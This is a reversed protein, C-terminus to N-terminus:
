AGRYSSVVVDVLLKALEKPRELMPLHGCEPIETESVVSMESSLRQIDTTPCLPDAVGRLLHVPSAVLKVLQELDVQKAAGVVSFLRISTRFSVGSMADRVTQIDLKRPAYVYSSLTIERFSSSKILIDTIRRPILVGVFQALTIFLLRPDHLAGRPSTLVDEVSFLVPDVLVIGKAIEPRMAAMQLVVLAGLSHGVLLNDGPAARDLFGLAEAAVEKLDYRTGHFASRGSGPLDFALVEVSNALEPVVANWFDLSTGLGHVLILRPSGEGAKYYRIGCDM